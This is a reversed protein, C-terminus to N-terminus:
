QQNYHVIVEKGYNGVARPDKISGIQRQVQEIAKKLTSAKVTRKALSNVEIFVYKMM